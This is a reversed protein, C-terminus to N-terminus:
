VRRWTDWLAGAERALDRPRIAYVREAIPRASTATRKRQAALIRNVRHVEDAGGLTAEAECVFKEVVSLDHHRGLHQALTAIEKERATMVKPWVNVLLEIHHLHDKVRKRWEHFAADEASRYAVAMARRGDSVTRAFDREVISFQTKDPLPARALRADADALQSILSEFRDRLASEDAFQARQRDSAIHRLARIAKRGIADSIGSPLARIAEVVTTTDRYPALERGADRFRRNEDDFADGLFGRFLRLLARTEKVRKRAEHVRERMSMTEDRFIKTTRETQWTCIRRLSDALSEKRHIQYGKEM